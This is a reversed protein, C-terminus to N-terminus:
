KKTKHHQIYPFHNRNAVQHEKMCQVALMCNKNIKKGTQWSSCQVPFLLNVTSLQIFTFNKNKNTMNLRSYAYARYLYYEPRSLAETLKLLSRFDRTCIAADIALDQLDANVFNMTAHNVCAKAFNNLSNKGPEINSILDVIFPDEFTKEHRVSFPAFM